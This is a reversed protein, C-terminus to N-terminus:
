FIDVVDTPKYPGSSNTNYLERYKPETMSYPEIPKSLEYRYHIQPTLMKDGLITGGKTFPHEGYGGIAKKIDSLMAKHNGADIVSQPIYMTVGQKGHQIQGLKFAPNGVVQGPGGVKSTSGWKMSIPELKDILYASDVLNEGFIHFKWGSMEVFNTPPGFYYWGKDITYKKSNMISLLEDDSKNLLYYQPNNTNIVEDAQKVVQEGADDSHKSARNMDNIAETYSKRVKDIYDLKTQQTPLNDIHNALIKANIDLEKPLYAYLPYGGIVRLPDANRGAAVLDYYGKLHRFGKEDLLGKYFFQYQDFHKVMDDISKLPRNFNDIVYKLDGSNLGRLLDDSQKGGYKVLSNFAEDTNKAISKIVTKIPNEVILEKEVLNGYLREETFLSKIRNIEENLSKM